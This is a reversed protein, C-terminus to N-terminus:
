NDKKNINRALNSPIETSLQIATILTPVKNRIKSFFWKFKWWQSHNLQPITPYIGEVGFKTLTKIMSFHQIRDFAKEADMAIFIHNKGKM